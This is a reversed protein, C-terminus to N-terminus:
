YKFCSVYTRNNGDDTSVRHGNEVADFSQKKGKGACRGISGGCRGIRTAWDFGEGEGFGFGFEEDAGDGEVGGIEVAVLVGALFELLLAEVGPAEVGEGAADGFDGALVDDAAAEGDGAGIFDGVGEEFVEPGVAEVVEIGAEDFDAVLEGARAVEEDEEAGIGATHGVEAGDGGGEDVFDLGFLGINFLFFAVSKFATRVKVRKNIRSVARFSLTKIIERVSNHVIGYVLGGAGYPPFGVKGGDELPEGAVGGEEIVADAEVAVAVGEEVDDFAQVGVFGGAAGTLGLKGGIRGRRAGDKDGVLAFFPFDEGGLQFGIVGFAVSKGEFLHNGGAGTKGEVEEGLGLAGGAAGGFGGATGGVAFELLALLEKGPEDFVQELNGERAVTEDGAGLEGILNFDVGAVEGAPIIDGKGHCAGVDGAGELGEIVKASDGLFFEDADEVAEDAFFAVGLLYDAGAGAHIDALNGV